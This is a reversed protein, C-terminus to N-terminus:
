APQATRAHARLYITALTIVAGLLVLVTNMQLKVQLAMAYSATMALIALNENFNQV